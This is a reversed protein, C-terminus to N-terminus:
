FVTNKNNNNNNNNNYKYNKTYNIFIGTVVLIIITLIIIDTNTHGYITRNFCQPKISILKKVFDDSRLPWDLYM